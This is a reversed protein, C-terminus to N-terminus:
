ASFGFVWRDGPSHSTPLSRVSFGPPIGREHLATVAKAMLKAVTNIMPSFAGLPFLRQAQAKCISPTEDQLEITAFALHIDPVIVM